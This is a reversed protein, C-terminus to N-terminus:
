CYEFAVKFGYMENLIGPLFSFPTENLGSIAMVMLSSIAPTSQSEILSETAPLMTVGTM